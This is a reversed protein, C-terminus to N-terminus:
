LDNEKVENMVFALVTEERVRRFLKEIDRRKTKRTKVVVILGTLQNTILTPFNRASVSPLDLLVFDFEKYLSALMGRFSSSKGSAFAGMSGAPMVFLNEIQTPAVCIDGGSLAEAVGPGRPIGFIEHIKPNNPNFDLVLTRRGIGMSLATALNCIATTKGEGENPSTVGLSLSISKYDDPIFLSYNFSNYLGFKIVRKDISRGPVTSVKVPRIVEAPSRLEREERSPLQEGSKQLNMGEPTIDDSSLMLGFTNQITNM